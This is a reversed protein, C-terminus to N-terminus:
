KPFAILSSVVIPLRLHRMPDNSSSPITRIQSEQHTYTAGCYPCVLRRRGEVSKSLTVTVHCSPCTVSESTSTNTVRGLRSPGDRHGNSTVGPHITDDGHISDTMVLAPRQSILYFHKQERLIFIWSGIKHLM